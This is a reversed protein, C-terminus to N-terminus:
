ISLSANFSTAFPPLTEGMVHRPKNTADKNLLKARSRSERWALWGQCGTRM